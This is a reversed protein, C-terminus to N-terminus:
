RRARPVTLTQGPHIRSSRLGNMRRLTGSSVGHSRAIDWLTDGRRVTYASPALSPGSAVRERRQKVYAEYQEPFVAVHYHPPRRESTAELVAESELSLLTAELWSRCRGSPRRLDLAMGTPHVSRESANRPQASHPRTLSTVVLQQGCARRYQSALREIFLKVAPRAFPFSVDKLRYNQNGEVRVLAGAAALQHVDDPEFAYSFAHDAAEATQVDLSSPSGRLSQASMHGVLSAAVVVLSACLSARSRGSARNRRTRRM